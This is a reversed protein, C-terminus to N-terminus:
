SEEYCIIIAGEELIIRCMGCLVRERWPLKMQVTTAGGFRVFRWYPEQTRHHYCSQANIDLMVHGFDLAIAGSELCYATMLRRNGRKWANNGEEKERQLSYRDNNGVEVEVFFGRLSISL